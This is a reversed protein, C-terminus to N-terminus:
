RHMACTDDDYNTDNDDDACHHYHHYRHLCFSPQSQFSNRPFNKAAYIMGEFLNKLFPCLTLRIDILSLRMFKSKFTLGFYLKANTNKGDLSLLTLFEM